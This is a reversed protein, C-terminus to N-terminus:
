PSWLCSGKMATPRSTTMILDGIQLAKPQLASHSVLDVVRDVFNITGIWCGGRLLAPSSSSLTPPLGSKTAPPSCPAGAGVRQRGLVAAAPPRGCPRGQLFLLSLQLSGSSRGSSGSRGSHPRSIYPVRPWPPTSPWAPTQSRLGRVSTRGGGARRGGAHVHTIGAAMASMAAPTARPPCPDPVTAAAPWPQRRTRDAHDTDQRCPWGSRRHPFLLPSGCVGGSAQM